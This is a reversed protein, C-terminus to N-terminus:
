TCYSNPRKRGEGQNCVDEPPGLLSFSLVRLCFLFSLRWFILSFRKRGLSELKDSFSKSAAAMYHCSSLTKLGLFYKEGRWLKTTNRENLHILKVTSDKFLLDRGGYTSSNFLQFVNPKKRLERDLRLLWECM